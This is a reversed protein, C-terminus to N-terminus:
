CNSGPRWWCCCLETTFLLLSRKGEAVLTSRTAMAMRILPKRLCSLGNEVNSSDPLQKLGGLAPMGVAPWGGAM